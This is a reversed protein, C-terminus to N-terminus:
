MLRRRAGAGSDRWARAAAAQEVFRQAAEPHGCLHVHVYSALVRGNTWGEARGAALAYAARVRPPEQALSSRHFEHGRVRAGMPWLPSSQRATLERYGLHLRMEAMSTALPALGLLAHRAGRRDELWRGAYMLGGCEAYLLAGDTVAARLSDLMPTNAALEAAHEEPFGGPLYYADAAPPAADALPSFPVVEAGWEGLLWLSDPYAFSFARDQAVAVRAGQPPPGDPLLGPPSAVSPTEPLRSLLADPDLTRELHDAAADAVNGGRGLEVEPVLGLHRSPLTMRPDAPLWGVVPTGIEELAAACLAAHRDSGVRQLVVGALPLERAFERFGLVTAAVSRATGSVDVVLLVPLGLLRAVDATSGDNFRPDAGDYMGMVGEVVAVDAWAARRAYLFRATDRPLLWTDLSACPEGAAASLHTPDIYDPGCKFPAVRLGKRRLLACLGAAVTTKGVGSHTGAVIVGRM